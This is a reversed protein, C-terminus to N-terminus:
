NAGYRNHHHFSDISMMAMRIRFSISSIPFIPFIEYLLKSAALSAGSTLRNVQSLVFPTVDRGRVRQDDALTLATQIAREITQGDAQSSEPIPVAILLGSGMNFSLNHHILRATEETTKVCYPAQFGSLPTFFAPFDKTPGFSAVCVGQTELYELTKGIDLISKVQCSSPLAFFLDSNIM